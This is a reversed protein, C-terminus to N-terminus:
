ANIIDLLAEKILLKTVVINQRRDEQKLKMYLQMLSNSNECNAFGIYNDIAKYDANRERTIKLAQRIAREVSGASVNFQSGICYYLATWKPCQWEPNDLLSIATVIYNFGKLGVPMGIDILKNEVIIKDM